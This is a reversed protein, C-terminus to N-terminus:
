NGEETINQEIFNAKNLFFFHDGECIFFKSNEIFSHIMEGAKLPTSTDSRGWFIYAKNSFNKFSDSMDEDVVNKFTDYMIQNMNSVDKSAFIRYFKGLGIKKFIKFLKIKARVTFRKPLVIGASSLLVLIKPNLLTAIKGGFSHGIIIKPSKNIENLFDSVVEKVEYSNLSKDITSNGFGPLDVYIHCYNKFSNKFCNQMLEKNAGWGHLILIYEKQSTNLLNYSINYHIDNSIFSKSAM